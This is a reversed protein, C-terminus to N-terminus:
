PNRFFLLFPQSALQFGICFSRNHDEDMLQEVTEGINRALYADSVGIFDSIDEFLVTLNKRNELSMVMWAVVASLAAYM